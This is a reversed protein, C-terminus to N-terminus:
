ERTIDEIHWKQKTKFSRKFHQSKKVLRLFRSHKKELHQIRKELNNCRDLIYLISSRTLSNLAQQSLEARLDVGSAILASTFCLLLIKKM